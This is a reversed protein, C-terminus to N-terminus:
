NTTDDPLPLHLEPHVAPHTMRDSVQEFRLTEEEWTPRKGTHPDRYDDSLAMLHSQISGADAGQALLRYSARTLIILVDLDYIPWMYTVYVPSNKLLMAGKTNLYWEFLTPEPAEHNMAWEIFEEPPLISARSIEMYQDAFLNSTRNSKFPLMRAALYDMRDPQGGHFDIGVRAFETRPLQLRDLWTGAELQATESMSREALSLRPPPEPLNLGLTKGYYAMLVSMRLCEATLNIAVLKTLISSSEALLQRAFLLESELTEWGQSPSGEKLLMLAKRLRLRNAAILNSYDPSQWFGGAHIVVGFDSSSKLAEYRDLLRANADLLQPFGSLQSEIAGACDHQNLTCLENPTTTFELPSEVDSVWDGTINYNRTVFAGHQWFNQGAPANFGYLGYYFAEPDASHQYNLALLRRVDESPRDDPWLYSTLVLFLALIVTAGAVLRARGPLGSQWATAIFSADDTTVVGERTIDYIWSVIAVIPVGLVLLLFLVQLVWGPAEWIECVLEGM